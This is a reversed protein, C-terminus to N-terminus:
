PQRRLTLPGGDGIPNVGPWLNMPVLRITMTEVGTVVIEMRAMTRHSDGPGPNVSVLTTANSNCYVQGTLEVDLDNVLHDLLGHVDLADEIHTGPLFLNDVVVRTLTFTLTLSLSDTAGVWKGAM